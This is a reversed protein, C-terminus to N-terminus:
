LGVAAFAEGVGDFEGGVGSRGGDLGVRWANDELAVEALEGARDEGEGVWISGGGDSRMKRRLLLHPPFDRQPYLVESRCECLENLDAVSSELLGLVDSNSNNRQKHLVRCLESNSSPIPRLLVL